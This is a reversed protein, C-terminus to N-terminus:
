FVSQDYYNYIIYCQYYNIGDYNGLNEDETGTIEGKRYTKRHM